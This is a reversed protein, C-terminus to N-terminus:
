DSERAVIHVDVGPADSLLRHINNRCAIKRRSDVAPRDFVPQTFHKELVFAATRGAVDKGTLRVTPMCGACWGRPARGVSRRRDGPAEESKSACPFPGLSSARDMREVVGTRLVVM